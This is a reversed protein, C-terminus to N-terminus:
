GDWINIINIETGRPFLVERVEVTAKGLARVKAQKSFDGQSAIKSEEYLGPPFLILPFV